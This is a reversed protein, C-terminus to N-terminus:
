ERVKIHASQIAEGSRFSRLEDDVQDSISITGM